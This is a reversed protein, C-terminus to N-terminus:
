DAKDSNLKVDDIKGWAGNGSGSCRVYVGVTVVDGDQVAIGRIMPADWVNYSTITSAQRAVETGNIKVYTYIEVEGGDGGMISLEFKYLGAELDDLQQELTFEVTGAKASYFHYHKTGTLSDSKKDEVYLQECGGLNTVRWEGQAEDEFSWNKLFNYEVMSVQCVAEMGDAVGKLLRSVVEDAGLNLINGIHFGLEGVGIGDFVHFFQNFHQLVVVVNLSDPM